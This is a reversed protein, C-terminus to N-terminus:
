YTTTWGGNAATGPSTTGGGFMGPIAGLSLGGTFPAGIIAAGTGFLGKMMGSYQESQAKYAAQQAQNQVNYAGTVDAPQVQTTPTQWLNGTASQPAGFQALEQAMMAPLQYNQLAQGYAQNEFGAANSANANQLTNNFQRMQQDYSEDGPVLGQNRLKTDLNQTQYDQEPRLQQMQQAILKETESGATGSIDPQGSGYNAGTLLNQGQQGAQTQTGQLLNLLQQQEPSYQNTATYQGTAPDFTYSLSGTPGVQNISNLRQTGQAAGQNATTQQAAITTAPTVTPTKPASLSGM